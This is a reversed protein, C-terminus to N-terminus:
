GSRKRRVVEEFVNTGRGSRTTWVFRERIRFRGGPLREIACRSRGGHIEGSSEVQLYRFSLSAGRVRGVLVGRRVRGGGYRGLVRAGKQRFVLETGAGVVGCDATSRVRM